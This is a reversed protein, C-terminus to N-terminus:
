RVGEKARYAATMQERQKRLDADAQGRLYIAPADDPKSHLGAMADRFGNTYLRDMVMPKVWAEGPLEKRPVCTQHDPTTM